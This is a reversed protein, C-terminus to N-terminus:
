RDGDVQVPTSLSFRREGFLADLIRKAGGRSLRNQMTQNLYNCLCGYCCTAEDCTCTSVIEYAKYILEEVMDSLQFAHGAGGPVDDYLMISMKKSISSYLTGGIESEPVELLNAAAAFLAWLLSQWDDEEFYLGIGLDFTLELVDSIFMTGLSNFRRARKNKCFKRHTVTGTSAAGCSMCVNFGAAREGANVVCLQANSAYKTALAGGAFAYDKEKFEKPWRQSFFIRMNGKTRPRQLGVDKSVREGIFGNAPVLMKQKFSIPEGCVPCDSELDEVNLPWVYNGCAACQGYGRIEFERGRLQKIGTSKWLKKGAVVEAGPAYERIALRLGRQLELSNTKRASDQEILSLDVLDTPFGYKPLVGNEALVKITEEKILAARSRELAQAYALNTDRHEEIGDTLRVYDSHKILHARTLRGEREDLLDDVWKWEDVGIRAAAGKSTEFVEALQVTIGAPRSHLYKRLKDLGDPQTENLGIFDNFHKTLNIGDCEYRYRFYHSLAIAFIHRRAIIDNDLYCLPPKTEGKIISEPQKFFAIDHPRLRAFTIAYGPMGARRGTRGARQTYNATSPPVNRMFVARLDGVDVGLEFTTTCSLVHVEGDIFAKQIKRAQESSLQATHEEIRLPLAYEQYVNKYYEDKSRAELFTTEVTTGTCNSGPCVGHTDYHYECGCTDCVYVPDSEAHPEFQWINPKLRFGSIDGDLLKTGRRGIAGLLQVLFIYVNVLIKRADERSLEVGHVREAYRRIFKSRKNERKSLSGVFRINNRPNPADDDGKVILREKARNERYSNAGDSASLGASERLTELCVRLIILYDDRNMWIKINEPLTEITANVVEQFRGNLSSLIINPVVKVVGLGELSNRGDEAELEDLVWAKALNEKGLESIEEEFYMPHRKLGTTSIWHVVDSPACKNTPSDLEEVAERIMQRITIQKYTREMAPAFFAADQRKDSFCIVSGPREDEEDAFFEAFLDDDDKPQEFPPLQRTLEYCVISGAAEPSVRMPQIANRNRYGCHSCRSDEETATGIELPVRAADPHSFRHPGREDSDHLTGCVPCLWVLESDDNQQDADEEIEELGEYAIRYYQRPLFDDDANTGEHRPDLWAYQEENRETGLIYAQGCRRCVSVEYVPTDNEDDFAVGVTKDSTLTKTALNLYLGEPARLFSHYRSALVPVDISRQASSLVEVMSTLVKVGEDNGSLGEIGIEEIASLSTLDLVGAAIRRVLIGTSEEGLLVEGLGRLAGGEADFQAMQAPKLVRVLVNRIANAESEDLVAHRLDIWTSLPLRGWSPEKLDDVPSDQISKIVSPADAGQEFPEGFIDQAFKAVKPMDEESGITASTAYCHLDLSSGSEARIRAKLRRLLYAIETGLAGSYIHAEDIAIHRWTKGFAGEFLAADQPRLLLYELMSYNTLMINPPAKRIQERAIIENSLREEGPNEENWAQVAQSFSEATDGTYRGFTIDTGALLERLRKLQDNALANMPYLIMARVGASPGNAAFEELIDNIIPLLFCETKGSGTGTVVIYNKGEKARRIAKVQHVYLQRDADFGQLSLMGKCVTGEDVLQRLTLDKTYPPTAELFPGKALFNRQALISRLQTQLDKNEFHITTALYDRYAEEIQKASAIPDFFKKNDM